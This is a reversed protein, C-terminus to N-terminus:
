RWSLACFRSFNNVYAGWGARARRIAGDSVNVLLLDYPTLLNYTRSTVTRVERASILVRDGAPSWAIAGIDAFSEPTIRRAAGTRLDHLYLGRADDEGGMLAITTGDPSWAAPASGAITTERGSALERVIVEEVGDARAIRLLRAGDPSWAAFRATLPEVTGDLKMIATSLYRNDRMGTILLRTGDPSWAIRTVWLLVRGIEQRHSGDARMVMIANEQARNVAYAIRTGDLSRTPADHYAKGQTLAIPAGGPELTIVHHRAGPPTSTLLARGDALRDAQCDVNSLLHRDFGYDADLIRAQANEGYQEVYVVVGGGRGAGIALAVTILVAFAITGGITLRLLLAIM